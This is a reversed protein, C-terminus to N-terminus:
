NFTVQYTKTRLRMRIYLLLDFPM